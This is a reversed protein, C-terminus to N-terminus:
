SFGYGLSVICGAAFSLGAVLVFQLPSWGEAVKVAILLSFLALWFWFGM